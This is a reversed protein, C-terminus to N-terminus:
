ISMDQNVNSGGAQPLRAGDRAALGSNLIKGVVGSIYDKDLKINPNDSVVRITVEANGSLKNEVVSQNNNTTVNSINKDMGLNTGATFKGDKGYYSDKDNLTFTGAPGSVFTQGGTDIQLDNAGKGFIGKVFIKADTVESQLSEINFSGNEVGSQIANTINDMSGRLATTIFNEGSANDVGFADEL